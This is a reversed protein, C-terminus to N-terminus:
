TLNRWRNRSRAYAPKITSPQTEEYVEAGPDANAIGICYRALWIPLRRYWRKFFHRPMASGRSAQARDPGFSSEFKNKGSARAGDDEMSVWLNM